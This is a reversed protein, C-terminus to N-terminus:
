SKLSNYLTQSSRDVINISSKLNNLARQAPSVDVGIQTAMIMDVAM